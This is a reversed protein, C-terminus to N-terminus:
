KRWPRVVAIQQKVVSRRRVFVHAINEADFAFDFVYLSAPLGAVVVHHWDTSDASQFRRQIESRKPRIRMQLIGAEDSPTHLPPGSSGLIPENNEDAPRFTAIAVTKM